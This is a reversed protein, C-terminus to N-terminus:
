IAPRKFIIVFASVLPKFVNTPVKANGENIKVDRTANSQFVTFQIKKSAIRIDFHITNKATPMTDNSKVLGNFKPRAPM